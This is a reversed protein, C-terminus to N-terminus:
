LEEIRTLCRDIEAPALRRPPGDLLALVEPGLLEAARPDDRDLGHRQALVRAALEGLRDRLVPDPTRAAEHAELLRLHAALRPDGRERSSPREVEVHWSVGGDSLADIVLGLVAVCTAVLLALRGADPGADALVLVVQLAGFVVVGGVLRRWWRNRTV